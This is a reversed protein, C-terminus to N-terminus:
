LATITFLQFKKAGRANEHEFAPIKQVTL